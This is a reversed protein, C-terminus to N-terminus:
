ADADGDQDEDQSAPVFIKGPGIFGLSTTMLDFTGICRWRAPQRTREPTGDPM